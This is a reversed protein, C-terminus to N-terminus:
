TIIEKWRGIRELRTGNIFEVKKELDKALKKAKSIAWKERQIGSKYIGLGLCGKFSYNVEYVGGYYVVVKVRKKGDKGPKNERATVVESYVLKGIPKGRKGAMLFIDEPTIGRFNTQNSMIESFGLNYKFM